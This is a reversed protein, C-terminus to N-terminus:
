WVSPLLELGLQDPPPGGHSRTCLAALGLLPAGPPSRSPCGQAPLWCAVLLWCGAVLGAVLGSHALTRTDTHTHSLSLRSLSFSLPTLAFLLYIYILSLSLCCLYVSVLVQCKSNGINPLSEPHCWDVLKDIALQTSAVTGMLTKRTFSPHRHLDKWGHSYFCCFLM